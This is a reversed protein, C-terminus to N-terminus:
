QTTVLKFIDMSFKGWEPQNLAEIFGLCHLKLDLSFMNKVVTKKKSTQKILYCTFKIVVGRYPAIRDYCVIILFKTFTSCIYMYQSYFYKCSYYLILFSLVFNIASELRVFRFCHNPTEWLCIQPIYTYIAIAM